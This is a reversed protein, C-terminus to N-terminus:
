PAAEGAELMAAIRDREGRERELVNALPGPLEADLASRVLAVVAAQGLAEAEWAWHGKGDRGDVKWIPEIDKAQEDTLGIREWDIARDATQELVRETNAEIDHGSRDLDGLYRVRRDNDELLPAIVTRLFGAAQGKTGAIPCCYAAAVGTLALAMGRSETLILPPEAGWPNIRAEPLREQVYDAITPAHLWESLSRETDAIWDWRIRGDNRLRTVADTVDQSGPPWGVSRRCNRREDGQQPKQALGRQELGYFLFRITTPLGDQDAAHERLLAFVAAETRAAKTM